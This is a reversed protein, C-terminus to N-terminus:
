LACLPCPTRLHEGLTPVCMRNGHVFHILPKVQGFELITPLGSDTWFVPKLVMLKQNFSWVSRAAYSPRWSRVDSSM